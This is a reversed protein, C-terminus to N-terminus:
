EVFLLTVDLEIREKTLRQLPDLFDGVHALEREPRARGVDKRLLLDFVQLLVVTLLIALDVSLFLVLLSLDDLALDAVLLFNDAVFEKVIEVQGQTALVFLIHLLIHGM